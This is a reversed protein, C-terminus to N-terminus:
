EEHRNRFAEITRRKVYDEYDGIRENAKDIQRVTGFAKAELVGKIHHLQFLLADAGKKTLEFKGPSVPSLFDRKCLSELLYNAHETNIGMKSGIKRKTVAGLEMATRLVTLENPSPM